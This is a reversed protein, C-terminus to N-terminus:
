LVGLAVEMMGTFSKERQEATTAQSFDFMLDSVTLLCAANKGTIVANHFLGFSEMEVAICNKEDRIRKWYEQETKITRYFIDSSHIRGEILPVGHCKGSERLKEVLKPSAPIVDNVFGSQFRAYSSESFADVALVVDYLELEESYGGSSGIRIINDVDYETYLEYSYIGISPIGMGSGMVSVPKGKYSGTFGQMGRVNIFMVPEDLYKESVFKARLPDGPMLVTKAIDGKEASNHPTSM